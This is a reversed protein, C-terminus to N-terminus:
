VPAISLVGAGPATGETPTRLRLCSSHGLVWPSVEYEGGLIPAYLPSGPPPLQWQRRQHTVAPATPVGTADSAQLTHVAGSAYFSRSSHPPSSPNAHASGHQPSPNVVLEVPPHLVAAPVLPRFDIHRPQV